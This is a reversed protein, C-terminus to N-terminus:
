DMLGAGMARVGSRRGRGSIRLSVGGYAGNSATTKDTAPTGARVHLEENVDEFTKPIFTNNKEMSDFSQNLDPEPAVERGDGPHQQKYQFVKTLTKYIM